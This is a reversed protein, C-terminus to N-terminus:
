ARFGVTREENEFLWTHQSATQIHIGNEKFRQSQTSFVHRKIVYPCFNKDIVKTTKQHEEVLMVPLETKCTNCMIGSVYTDNIRM